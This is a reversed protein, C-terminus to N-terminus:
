ARTGCTTRSAIVSTAAQPGTAGARGPRGRVANASRGPDADGHAETSDITLRGGTAEVITEALVYELVDVSPLSSRSRRGNGAPEPDTIACCCGCARGAAARRQPRDLPHRRLSRRTRAALRARSRSGRSRSRSPTPTPSPSRADLARARSPRASPRPRIRRATRRAATEIMASVDVPEALSSSGSPAGQLSPDRRRRYPRRGPRGARHLARSLDRRRLPRAAARHLDPDLRPSQPDRPLPQPRAKALGSRRERAAGDGAIRGSRPSHTASPAGAIRCAAEPAPSRFAAARETRPDARGAGRPRTLEASPDRSPGEIPRRLAQRMAPSLASEVRWSKAASIPTSRSARLRPSAPFMAPSRDRRTPSACIAPGRDSGRRAPSRRESSPKSSPAIAGGPQEALAALASPAFSRPSGGIQEAFDRATAVAIRAIEGSQPDLSPVEVVLPAFVRALVAELRDELGAPGATAIWRLPGATAAGPPTQERVWEALARQASRSLADIEDLWITRVRLGTRARASEIRTALADIEDLERADIRLLPGRGARAHEAHLGLLSRGSGPRGRLLLPLASFRPDVARELGPVVTEGFWAAFRASARAGRSREALSRRTRHAFAAAIERRLAAPDPPHALAVARGDRLAAPERRAALGDILIWRADRVRPAVSLAFDLERDPDPDPEQQVRSPRDPGPLALVIADPVEDRPFEAASPGGSSIRTPALGTARALAARAQPNRHVIWLKSM